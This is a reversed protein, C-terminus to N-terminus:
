KKQAGLLKIVLKNFLSHIFKDGNAPAFTIGKEM